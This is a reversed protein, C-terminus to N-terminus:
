ITVTIPTRENVNRNNNTNNVNNLSNNLTNQSNRSIDTLTHMLNIENNSSSNQNINRRNLSENHTLMSFIPTMTQRSQTISPPGDDLQEYEWDTDNNITQQKTNSSSTSQKQTLAVPNGIKTYETSIITLEVIVLVKGNPILNLAYKDLQIISEKKLKQTRVYNNLNPLLLCASEFYDGDSLLILYRDNPNQSTNINRINLVQLKPKEINHNNM